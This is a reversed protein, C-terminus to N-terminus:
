IWFMALLILFTSLDIKKDIDCDYQLRATIDRRHPAMLKLYWKSLLLDPM